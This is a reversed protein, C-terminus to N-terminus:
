QMYDLINCWKFEIIDNYKNGDDSDEIDNDIRGILRSSGVKLVEVWFREYKNCVKVFDGVKIEIDNEVEERCKPMLEPGYNLLYPKKRSSNTM